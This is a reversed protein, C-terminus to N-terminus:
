HAKNPRDAPASRTRQGPAPASLVTRVRAPTPTAGLFDRTAPPGWQALGSASMAAWGPTLTHDFLDGDTFHEVLFRDPDRWYDFIQSGQIHRGIGWSRRYGRRALYRGGAALADLDAVQYASHVYGTDPGLHMALTHHDTPQGSRDCRHVGHHPRTRAPRRTLPLRQRDSRSPAPVLGPRPQVRLNVACPPRAARRTRTGGAGAAPTNIRAAHPGTNFTLPIQGPLAPHEAVGHVVRVPIGSPDLLDITHGGAHDHLPQVRHGTAAALFAPGLIRSAPGKRIILCHPGSLTGRLYLATPTRATVTFGFDRAFTAARELDPKVFELWALDVAKIVPQRDRGPHKEAAPAKRAHLGHHPDNDSFAPADSPM